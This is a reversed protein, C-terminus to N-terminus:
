HATQQIFRQIDPRQAADRQQNDYQSRHQPRRVTHKCQAYKERGSDHTFKVSDPPKGARPRERCIRDDDSRRDDNESEQYFRARKRGTQRAAASGATKTRNM